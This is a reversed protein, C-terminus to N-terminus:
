GRGAIKMSVDRWKILTEEGKGEIMTKRALACGEEITETLGYVYCGVGANLVVADKKANNVYDGGQLVMEFEKANQAPDGGRLDEVKCRPINITLPDFQYKRTTYTRTEGPPATNKIQILYSFHLISLHHIRTM